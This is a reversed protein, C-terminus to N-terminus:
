FLVYFFANAKPYKSNNSRRVVTMIVLDHKKLSVDDIIILSDSDIDSLWQVMRDRDRGIFLKIMPPNYRPDINFRNYIKGAETNPFGDPVTPYIVLVQVPDDISKFPISHRDADETPRQGVKDKTVIFGSKHLSTKQAVYDTAEREFDSVNIFNPVNPYSKYASANAPFYSHVGISGDPQLFYQFIKYEQGKYCCSFRVKGKYDRNAVRIDM